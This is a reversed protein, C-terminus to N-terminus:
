KPADRHQFYAGQDGHEYENPENMGDEFRTSRSLLVFLPEILRM